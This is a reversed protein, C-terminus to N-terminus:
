RNHPSSVEDLTQKLFEAYIRPLTRKTSTVFFFARQMTLNEVQIEKLRGMALEDQVGCRSIISVGLDAKTAEKVASSSGLTACINLRNASFQQQELLSEISRKTGSGTERMIFPLGCLNDFTIKGPVPNDKAAVLILEDAALPIYNLGKSAIEAGVIGIFLENNKISQVIKTSDSIRLEFSIDPYRTKFSAALKPLIYAGPITSAGILLKGSISKGTSSIEEILKDIDELISLARPYLM